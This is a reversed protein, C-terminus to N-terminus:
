DHGGGQARIWAACKATTGICLRRGDESLVTAGARASALRWECAELWRTIEEWDGLQTPENAVVSAQRLARIAMEGYSRRAAVVVVARLIEVIGRLQCLSLDAMGWRSGVTRRDTM